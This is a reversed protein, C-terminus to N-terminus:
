NTGGGHPLPFEGLPQSIAQCIFLIQQSRPNQPDTTSFTFYVAILKDIFWLTESNCTAQQQNIEPRFFLVPPSFEPEVASNEGVIHCHCSHWMQKASETVWMDCVCVRRHRRTTNWHIFVWIIWFYAMNFSFMLWMAGIYWLVLLTSCQERRIWKIKM